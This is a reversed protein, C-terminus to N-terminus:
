NYKIKMESYIIGGFANHLSYWSMHSHAAPDTHDDYHLSNLNGIFCQRYWWGGKHDVACNGDGNDNDNDKTSFKMGLSCGHGWHGECNSLSDGADGSYGGVNLPYKDAENGVEFVDYKAYFLQTPNKNHKLDIRLKAGKGPGALLNMKDLGMWYNGNIDGFGHKYDNWDKQFDTTADVRRQIVVWGDKTTSM